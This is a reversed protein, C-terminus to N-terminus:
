SLNERYEKDKTLQNILDEIKDFKREERLREHFIVEIEEDYIDKKFDLIYTEMILNEGAFTPNYGINSISKYIKGDKTPYKTSTAYVNARPLLINGTDMNATPFGLMTSGRKAGHVVIGKQSYARGLMANVLEIDGNNLANRISSSSISINKYTNTNLLVEDLVTLICHPNLVDKLAYTHCKDSGMAFNHGMVLEKCHIIDELFNQAFIKASQKAFDETFPIIYCYEIDFEKIIKIREELSNIAQMSNKSFLASPHPDFTIVISPINRNNASKVTKELLKQHGLHVGDFNGICAISAELNLPKKDEHKHYIVQM